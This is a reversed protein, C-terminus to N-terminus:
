VTLDNDRQLALGQRFVEALALILLGAFFEPSGFPSKFGLWPPTDAPPLQVPTGSIAIQTHEVLHGYLAYAFWSEGMASVLSFVILSGGVFQVLRVSQATFSDGRGVNRFLRRLLEFLATFFVAYTLLIPLGYTKLLEIAGAPRDVTLAVSGHFARLELAPGAQSGTDPQLAITGPQGMFDAKIPGFRADPPLEPDILIIAIICVAAFTTFVVLVTFTVRFLRPLLRNM